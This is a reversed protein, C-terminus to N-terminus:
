LDELLPERLPISDPEESQTNGRTKTRPRSSAETETTTVKKSNSDYASVSGSPSMERTDEGTSNTKGDKLQDHQPAYRQKMKERLFATCDLIFCSYAECGRYKITLSPRVTSIMSCSRILCTVTSILVQLFEFFHLKFFFHTTGECKIM